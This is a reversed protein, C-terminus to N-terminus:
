QPPKTDPPIADRMFREWEWEHPEGTPLAPPDAQPHVLHPTVLVLLETRSDRHDKSRFLAGLIPIEGLWPIKTANRTTMSDILGAIAFTQGADLEVVTEAKRTLIVPILFGSIQLGGSFDLQSVEPAVRMRIGGSLTLEPLFNLRVGFEKFVITIAQSQAQVVPYPFEGGALFSAEEGPYALLNPEALSRFDGQRRLARILATVNSPRHFLFINITDALTLVDDDVTIEGTPTYAFPDDDPDVRLANVGIDTLTSRTVEAFRVQLLIQPRDPVVIQDIVESGNALRTALSLAQHAVEVERVTGTLIVTDGAATARIGSDPLLRALEEEVYPANAVVQVSYAAFSGDVGWLLLSTTGARVGNVIVETPSVPIVDAIEPDAISVRDLTTPHRVVESGGRPVDIPQPTHPVLQAAGPHPLLMAILLTGLLRRAAPRVRARGSTETPDTRMM